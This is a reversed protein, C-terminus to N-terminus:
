KKKEYERYILNKYKDVHAEIVIDGVVMRFFSFSDKRYGDILLEQALRVFRKDQTEFYESIPFHGFVLGVGGPRMKFVSKVGKNQM